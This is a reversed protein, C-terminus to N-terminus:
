SPDLRERVEKEAIKFIEPHERQVWRMVWENVVRKIIAEKDIHMNVSYKDPTHTKM